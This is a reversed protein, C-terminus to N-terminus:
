NNLTYILEALCLLTTTLPSPEPRQELFFHLARLGDTTSVIAQHTMTPDHDLSLYSSTGSLQHEAEALYLDARWVVVAGGKDAPQAFPDTPRSSSENLSIPVSTFIASSSNPTM